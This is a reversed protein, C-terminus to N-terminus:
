KLLVMKRTQSFREGAGDSAELRCYYIGSAMGRADWTVSHSGAPEEKNVLVAVERGLPDFVRLTVTSVESIQYRIETGPNFPNPYNSLSFGRPLEISPGAVSTVADSYLWLYAGAFETTWFSPHHAGTSRIESRLNTGLTYGAAALTDVMRTQADSFIPGLGTNLPYREATSSVFYLKNQMAAPNMYVAATDYMQSMFYFSSSFSAVLGFVDPRRLGAYFALDSGASEGLIGTSAPGTLTRYNQDVYPKLTSVLFDVYQDGEDGISTDSPNTWPFYEHNRTSLDSQIAVVIVGWDGLAHLSDLIEDVRMEGFFTSGFWAEVDDFLLHGDTAYLVPYAKSTTQYDPPLYIWIKHTRNLQPMNFAASLVSVSSTATSQATVPVTTAALLTLLLVVFLLSNQGPTPRYEM